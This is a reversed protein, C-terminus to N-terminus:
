GAIFSAIPAFGYAMAASVAIIIVIIGILDIIPHTADSARYVRKAKM